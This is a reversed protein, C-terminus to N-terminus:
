LAGRVIFVAIDDIVYEATKAIIIKKM